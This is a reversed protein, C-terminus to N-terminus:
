PLVARVTLGQYRNGYVNDSLVGNRMFVDYNNNNSWYKLYYSTAYHNNTGVTNSWMIVLDSDDLTSKSYLGTLPLFITNGNRGTVQYGEIDNSSSWKWTCSDFLEELEEKTPMRWPNGMNVTAADDDSDLTIIGDKSNYKSAGSYKYTGETYNSKSSTEGWAFYFGRDEPNSAGVNCTAWKVSLGLDVYEYGNVEHSGVYGFAEISDIQSYSFSHVTGDKLHVTIGQAYGGIVSALLLALMLIIKEAKM